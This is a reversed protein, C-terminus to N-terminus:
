SGQRSIGQWEMQETGAESRVLGDPQSGRASFPLHRIQSQCPFAASETRTPTSRSIARNCRKGAPAGAGFLGARGRQLEFVLAPQMSIHKTKGTEDPANFRVLSSAVAIGM